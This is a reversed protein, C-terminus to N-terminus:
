ITENRHQITFLSNDLAKQVSRDWLPNFVNESRLVKSQTFCFNVFPLVRTHVIALISIVVFHAFNFVSASIMALYLFGM